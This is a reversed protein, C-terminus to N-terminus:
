FRRLFRKVGEVEDDIDGPPKVFREFFSTPMVAGAGTVVGLLGLGVGVMMPLGTNARQPRTPRSSRAALQANIAATEDEAWSIWRFCRYSGYLLALSVLALTGRSILNRVFPSPGSNRPKIPKWAM